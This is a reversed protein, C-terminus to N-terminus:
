GYVLFFILIGSVMDPNKDIKAFTLQTKTQFRYLQFFLIKKQAIKFFITSKCDIETLTDTAPVYHSDTLVIFTPCM